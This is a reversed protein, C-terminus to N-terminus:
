SKWSYDPINGQYNIGPYGMLRYLINNFAKWQYLPNSYKIDIRALLDGRTFLGKGIANGELGWSM